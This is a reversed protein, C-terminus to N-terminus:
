FFKPVRNIENQNPMNEDILHEICTDIEDM